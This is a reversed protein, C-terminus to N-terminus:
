LLTEENEPETETTSGVFYLDCRDVEVKNEGSSPLEALAESIKMM